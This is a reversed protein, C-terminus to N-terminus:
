SRLGGGGICRSSFTLARYNVMVNRTTQLGDEDAGWVGTGGVSAGAADAFPGFFLPGGM